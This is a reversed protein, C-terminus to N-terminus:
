FVGEKTRDTDEEDTDSTLGSLARPDFKTNQAGQGAGAVAGLGSTSFLDGPLAARINTGLSNIFDNFATDAQSSYSYPDFQQGLRSQSASSRGQNAIDRLSTQGSAILGTGIENLRATVGPSQRDLDAAAANYGTQNIVGRQLMNKIIDDARGRQEAHIGGIIPDDITYPLRQTEFNPAFISDLTRMLQNRFGSQATDYVTPGANQFYAGPNPDDRSIGSLIRNIEADITSAYDDPVLGQNTFYQNVNSRGSTLADTRLQALEAQRVRAAEEQRLREKEREAMELRAIDLSHDEPADPASM